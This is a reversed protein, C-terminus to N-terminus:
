LHGQVASYDSMKRKYLSIYQSNKPDPLKKESKKSIRM